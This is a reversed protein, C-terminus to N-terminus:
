PLREHCPCAAKGDEFGLSYWQNRIDQNWVELRAELDEPTTAETWRVLQAQDELCRALFDGVATGWARYGLAEQDILEAFTFRPGAADDPWPPADSDHSLPPADGPDGPLADSHVPLPSALGPDAPRTTPTM